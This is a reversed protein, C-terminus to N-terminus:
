AVDGPGPQFYPLVEDSRRRLEGILGAHRRHGAIELEGSQCRFRCGTDLADGIVSEIPRTVATTFLSRSM